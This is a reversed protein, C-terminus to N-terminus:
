PEFIEYPWNIIGGFDYVNVYGLETLERAAVKSRNGSRCYVLLVAQKDTTIHKIVDAITGLPINFADPIYGAEFEVRTRVDLILVNGEDIMKKAEAADIVRYDPATNSEVLILEAGIPISEADKILVRASIVNDPELEDSVGSKTVIGGSINIEHYISTDEENRIIIYDGPVMDIIRGDVPVGEDSVDEETPGPVEVVSCASVFVVSIVIFTILLIKKM